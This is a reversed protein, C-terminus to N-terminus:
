NQELRLPQHIMQGSWKTPWVACWSPRSGNSCRCCEKTMGNKRGRFLGFGLVAVLVVDFWGFPLQDLAFSQTAVAIMFNFNNEVGGHWCIGRWIM